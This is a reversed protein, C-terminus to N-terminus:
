KCIKNPMRCTKIMRNLEAVFDKFKLKLMQEYKEQSISHQWHNLEEMFTPANPLQALALKRWARGKELIKYAYDGEGIRTTPLRSVYEWRVWNPLARALSYYGLGSWLCLQRVSLHDNPKLEELISFAKIKSAGYRGRKKCLKTIGDWNKM